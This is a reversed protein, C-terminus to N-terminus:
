SRDGVVALRVSQFAQLPAPSVPSVSWLVSGTAVDIAVLGSSEIEGTVTGALQLTAGDASLAAATNLDHSAASADWRTWWLRAGTAADFAAAAFDASGVLGAVPP